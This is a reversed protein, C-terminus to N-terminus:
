VFRAFTYPQPDIHPENGDILETILKGTAPVMSLGLMNHGAAMYVNCMAPVHLARWADAM